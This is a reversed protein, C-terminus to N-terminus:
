REPCMDIVRCVDCNGDCPEVHILVDTHKLVKKIDKEIHTCLNHAQEVTYGKSVVLHLDIYKRRGSRRSRFRHFNVFESYHDNIITRIINEERTSLKVDTLDIAARRTLDFGCKMIVIAVLIAIMPDLYYINLINYHEGIKIGILGAMVGLSTYVDTRLHYANTKLAISKHKRAVRFLKESVIINVMVSVLMVGIGLDVAIKPAGVYIKHVSKVIILIGAGFILISEIFGGLSEFKGHGFKHRTDPPKIARKISYTAIVAALLDIGSHISESIVSVSLISIGVCLKLVTLVTNSFISVRAWRLREDTKKKVVGEGKYTNL